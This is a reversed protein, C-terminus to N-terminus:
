VLIAVGDNILSEFLANKVPRGRGHALRANGEAGRLQGHEQVADVPGLGLAAPAVVSRRGSSCAPPVPRGSKKGSAISCNRDTIRVLPILGVSRAAAGGVGVATSCKGSSTAVSLRM